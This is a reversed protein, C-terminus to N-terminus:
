QHTASQLHTASLSLLIPNTVATQTHPLVTTTESHPVKAKPKPAPPSHLHLHHHDANKISSYRRLQQRPACRSPNPSYQMPLTALPVM